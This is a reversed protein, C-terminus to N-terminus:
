TSYCIEINICKSLEKNREFLRTRHMFNCILLYSKKNFVFSVSKKVWSVFVYLFFKTSKFCMYFLSKLRWYNTSQRYSFSMECRVVNVLVKQSQYCHKQEKLNYSLHTTNSNKKYVFHSNIALFINVSINFKKALM